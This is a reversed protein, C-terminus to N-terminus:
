GDRSSATTRAGIQAELRDLVGILEDIRKTADRRSQNLQIVQEELTRIRGERESVTGRLEAERARSAQFRDVLARVLAELREFRELRHELRHESREAESTEAAGATRRPDTRDDADPIAV